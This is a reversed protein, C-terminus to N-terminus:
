AICALATADDTPLYPEVVATVATERLDAAGGYISLFATDAADRGVAIRVLSARPAKHTADVARWQGDVAAEVVAHFDMPCLGPAYAAVYRAPVDLARLLAIVLHAYDRCVGQRALLTDVAGDAPRSAGSAYSLRTGVWSTVAKVLDAAGTGSTFEAAAVALLRDSEAYRSPRLYLIRDADTVPPPEARGTVTAAYDVTVRGPPVTLLHTRGEGPVVAEAPTLPAGDSAVSLREDLAAGPGATAAIKLVLTLPEYADLVLRASVRRRFDV